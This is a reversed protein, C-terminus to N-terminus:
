RQTSGRGARRLSLPTMDTWVEKVWGLCEAKPGSKGAARWGWPIEKGEPWISYQEEHNVVVVYTTTDESEERSM